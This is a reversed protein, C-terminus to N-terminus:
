EYSFPSRKRLHLPPLHESDQYWPEFISAFESRFLLRGVWTRVVLVRMGPSDPHWLWEKRPRLLWHVARSLRTAPRPAVLRLLGKMRVKATM